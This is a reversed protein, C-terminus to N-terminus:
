SAKWEGSEGSSKVLLNVDGIVMGRAVAKRMHYITLLAFQVAALTEM